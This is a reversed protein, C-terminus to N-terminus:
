FEDDIEFTMEMDADKGKSLFTKIAILDGDADILAIENINKNALESKLIKCSYRCTTLSPYSYKDIPKRLLENKLVVDSGVPAIPIGDSGIAGDGFAMQAVKPLAIDGSRARVMKSRAINTTVANAM